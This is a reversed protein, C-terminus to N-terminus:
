VLNFVKVAESVIGVLAEVGFKETNIVLDYAERDDLDIGYIEKYRKNESKERVLIDRRAIKVSIGERKAVRGARVDLPADLWIRLDSPLMYASLRGDVVCGSRKACGVALEKQRADIEKDVGPHSEAYKSFELLSVNREAAMTRMVSGASVREMGFKKSIKDALTTKGSGVSGGITILM